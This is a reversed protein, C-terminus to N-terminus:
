GSTPTLEITEEYSAITVSFQDFFGTLGLLGFGPAWPDCFWVPATWEHSDHEDAVRLSVEAMRATVLAGGVALQKTPADGLDVGCVEAVFAGFRVATAGSDLLCAQPAIDLGEVVVDIIPRPRVAESDPDPLERFGFRV